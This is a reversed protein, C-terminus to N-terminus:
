KITKWTQNEIYPNLLADTGTEAWAVKGYM